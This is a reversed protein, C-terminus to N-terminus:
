GEFIARTLESTTEAADIRPDAPADRWQQRLAEIADAEAVKGQGTARMWKADLERMAEARRARIRGRHVARARGMDHVIAEGTDILADRYTRDAPVDGDRLIRWGTVGAGGPTEPCAEIERM